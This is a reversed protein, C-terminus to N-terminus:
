KFQSPIERRNLMITSVLTLKQSLLNCVLGHATFYKDAYIDPGTGYYVSCLNMVINNELNRHPANNEERGSYIMGHFAFGTTAECLWFFKVGYKRPKSPMYTRGSIKGRYGVLQEDVTLAKNPVYINRLNDNSISWVERIAALRDDAQKGPRNRYNDYQM